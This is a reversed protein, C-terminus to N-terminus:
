LNAEQFLSACQCVTKMPLKRCCATSDGQITKSLEQQAWKCQNENTQRTVSLKTASGQLHALLLSLKM